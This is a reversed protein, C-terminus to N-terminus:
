IRSIISIKGIKILSKSKLDHSHFQTIRYLRVKKINEVMVMSKAKFYQYTQAYAM